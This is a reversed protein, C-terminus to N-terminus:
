TATILVTNPAALSQIRSAINPADGFIDPEDGAGQAVVVSGTHIGVRASLKIGHEDAFRANLASMNEIIALGARVAREAADEQAAPYGFYAIVGDGLYYKAVHGGTKGVTQAVMRQYHIAVAHWHEADLRTAIETSDVLDCF